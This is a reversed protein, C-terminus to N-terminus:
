IYAHYIDPKKGIILTIHINSEVSALNLIFCELLVTLLRLLTIMISGCLPQNLARVRESLTEALVM